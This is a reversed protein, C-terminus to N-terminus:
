SDYFSIVEPKIVALNARVKEVSHCKAVWKVNQIM